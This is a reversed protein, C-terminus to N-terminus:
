VFASDFRLWDGVKNKLGLGLGKREGNIDLEDHNLRVYWLELM